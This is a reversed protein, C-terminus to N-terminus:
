VGERRCQLAILPRCDEVLAAVDVSVREPERKRVFEHVRRIVQGARQAQAAAKGIAEQLEAGSAGGSELLNRSGALYSAIAGLPQNLEHALSSAMEGMTTLRAATQLREERQREREEARKEETVDLISSMWGVQNGDADRLPADYIVAPFAQGDSRRLVTEFPAESARGSLVDRQRRTYEEIREPIWYPMPPEGGVLEEETYGVMRCFAPNVYLVRGRMDRARMGIVASDGMARRFAVEERLRHEADIRRRHDRWLAWLSFLLIAALAVIGVRVVNATWGPPGKLSNAGLLLTTGSLELPEQDTYVGRGRGTSVRRARVTGAIDSLTVEHEQAFDWPVMEELVRDLLYVAMIWSDGGPLPALLAISSGAPTDFPASFAPKGTERAKTMASDALAAPVSGAIEGGTGEREVHAAPNMAPDIVAVAAVERARRLYVDMRAQAAAPTSHERALDAAMLQLAETERGLQFLVSERVWLTEAVLKERVEGREQTSSLALLFLTAMALLFVAAAPLAWRLRRWGRPARVSRSPRTLM